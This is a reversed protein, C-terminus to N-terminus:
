KRGRSRVGIALLAALALAGAAIWKVLLARTMGGDAAVTAAIVNGGSIRVTVPGSTVAESTRWDSPATRPMPDDM